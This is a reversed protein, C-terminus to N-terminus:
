LQGPRWIGKKPRVAPDELEPRAKVGFWSLFKAFGASNVVFVTRQDSDLDDKTSFHKTFRIWEVQELTPEMTFRATTLDVDEPNYLASYLDANTVLIPVYVAGVQPLRGETQLHCLLRGEQKAVWNTAHVLRAADAELLRKEPGQQKAPVCLESVYSEHCTCFVAWFTSVPLTHAVANKISCALVATDTPRAVGTGIPRLFTLAANEMKKVEVVAYIGQKRGIADIFQDKGSADSWPIETGLLEWLASKALDHAIRTQFPFGSNKLAAQATESTPQPVKKSGGENPM